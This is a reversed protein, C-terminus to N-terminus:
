GEVKKLLTSSAAAGEAVKELSAQGTIDFIAVDAKFLKSFWNRLEVALLSDVGYAHLPRTRDIEAPAISTAKSLRQVLADVVVNAADAGSAARLLEYVWGRDDQNNDSAATGGDQEEVEQALGKFLPRDILWDPPQLGKARFQAPPVLGIVPQAQEPTLAQLGPDCYHHRIIAHTEGYVEENLRKSEMVMNILVSGDRELYELDHDAFYARAVTESM